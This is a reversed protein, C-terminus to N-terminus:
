FEIRSLLPSQKRFICEEIISCAHSHNITAVATLFNGCDQPIHPCMSQYIQVLMESSGETM